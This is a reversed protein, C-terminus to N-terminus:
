LPPCRARARLSSESSWIVGWFGIQGVVEFLPRKKVLSEECANTFGYLTAGAIMFLDGKLMNAAEYDKGTLTDSAVLLGLGSM